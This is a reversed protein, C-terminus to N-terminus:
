ISARLICKSVSFLKPWNLKDDPTTARDDLIRTLLQSWKARFKVLVFGYTPVHSSVITQLCPPKKNGKQITPEVNEFFNDNLQKQESSALLLDM